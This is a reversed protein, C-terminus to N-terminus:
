ENKVESNLQETLYRMLYECWERYQCYIITDGRIEDGFINTLVPPEEVDAAFYKCSHCCDEVELKIMNREGKTNRQKLNGWM